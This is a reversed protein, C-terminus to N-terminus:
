RRRRAALALGLAGLWVIPTPDAAIRCGGDDRGSAVPSDVNMPVDVGADPDGMPDISPESMPDVIPDPEYDTACTPLIENSCASDVESNIWEYWADARTEIVQGTCGDQTALRSAVGLVRKEGGELTVFTPGGSDGHCKRADGAHGTIIEHHSLDSITSKGCYKTGSPVQGTNSQWPDESAGWGVMEVSVDVDIMENEEPSLVAAVPRGEAPEELFMLGIDFWNSPKSMDFTGFPANYIDFSSHQLTQSVKLADDPLAVGGGFGGQVDELEGEFSIYFDQRILEMGYRRLEQEFYGDDICHAATLVVDSAILTGTCGPMAPLTFEAGGRTPKVTLEYVLAVAEPHEETECLIGDIISHPSGDVEPAKACGFGFLSLVAACVVFRSM